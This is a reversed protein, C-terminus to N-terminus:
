LKIVYMTFVDDGFPICVIHHYHNHSQSPSSLFSSISYVFRRRYFYPCILLVPNRTDKIWWHYELKTQLWFVDGSFADEYIKKLSTKRRKLSQTTKQFITLMLPLSSFNAFNVMYDYFIIIAAAVTDCRTGEMCIGCLVPCPMSRTSPLSFYPSWPSHRAIVPRSSPARIEAPPLEM